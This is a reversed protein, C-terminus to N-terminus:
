RVTRAWNDLLVATEVDQYIIETTPARDKYHWTRTYWNRTVTIEWKYYYTTVSADQTRVLETKEPTSTTAAEIPIGNRDQFETRLVEGGSTRIDYQAPNYISNNTTREYVSIVEYVAGTQFYWSNTIWATIGADVKWAFFGKEPNWTYGIGGGLYPKFINGIPIGLFLSGLIGGGNSFLGSRYENGNEYDGNLAILDLSLGGGQDLIGQFSISFSYPM